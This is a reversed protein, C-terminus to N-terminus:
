GSRLRQLKQLTEIDSDVNQYLESEPWRRLKAIGRENKINSTLRRDLVAENLSDIM